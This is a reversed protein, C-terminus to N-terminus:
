AVPEHYDRYHLRDDSTILGRPLAPLWYQRETMPAVYQEIETSCICSWM